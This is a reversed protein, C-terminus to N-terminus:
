SRERRDSGPTYGELNMMAFRSANWLKNCFNRGYEFRESVVRAVLEGPDPRVVPQFVAIPRVNPPMERAAQGRAPNASRTNLRRRFSRAAIRASTGWRCACTRTKAPLSTITFRVADVGYKDFLDMPDVGNGKSKSM